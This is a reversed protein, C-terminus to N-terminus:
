SSSPPGALRDAALSRGPRDSATRVAVPGRHLGPGIGDPDPDAPSGAQRWFVWALWLAAGYMPLALIAKTRGLWPGPKPLARLLAPSASILVYPLAFGLGLAAFVTLATLTPQTAAFGLAAAM